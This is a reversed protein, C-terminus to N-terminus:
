GAHIVTGCHCSCLDNIRPICLMHTLHSLSTDPSCIGHTSSTKQFLAKIKSCSLKVSYYDLYYLRGDLRHRTKRIILMKSCHPVHTLILSWCHCVSMGNYVLTPGKDSNKFAEVQHGETEPDGGSSWRVHKKTVGHEHKKTVGNWRSM